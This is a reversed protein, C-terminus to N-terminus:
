TTVIFKKYISISNRISFFNPFQKIIVTEDNEPAVTKYISVGETAASFFPDEGAPFEHRIHVVPIQSNRAKVLLSACKVSALEMDSLLFRGGAFYDNQIDILLLVSLM